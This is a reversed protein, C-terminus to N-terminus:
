GGRGAHRYARSHLLAKMGRECRQGEGGAHGDRQQVEDAAALNREAVADVECRDREAGHERRRGGDREEGCAGAPHIGAGHEDAARERDHRRQEAQVPQRRGPHEHPVVADHRERATRSEGDAPRQEREPRHGHQPARCRHLRKQDRGDHEDCADGAEAERRHQHGVEHRGHGLGAARDGDREEHEAEDEVADEREPGPARVHQSPTGAVQHDRGPDRPERGRERSREQQPPPVQAPPEAVAELHDADQEHGDGDRDVEGAPLGGMREHAVEAAGVEDGRFLRVEARLHARQHDRERRLVAIRFLVDAADRQAGDLHALLQAQRARPQAPQGDAAQQVVHALERDGVVDEALRPRQALGLEGLDLRVRLTAPVQEVLEAPEGLGHEGEDVVM